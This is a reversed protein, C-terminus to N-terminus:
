AAKNSAMPKVFRHWAWVGAIGIGLGVFFQAKM